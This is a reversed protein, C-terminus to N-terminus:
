GVRELAQLRGAGPDEPRYVRALTTPGDAEPIAIHVRMVERGDQVLFADRDARAVVARLEHHSPEVSRGGRSRREVDVVRPFLDVDQDRREGLGLVDEDSLPEAKASSSM